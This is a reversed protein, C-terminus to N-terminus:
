NDVCTLLKIKDDVYSIRCYKLITNIQVPTAHNVLQSYGSTFYLDDNLEPYNHQTLCYLRRLIRNNNPPNVVIKIIFYLFYL